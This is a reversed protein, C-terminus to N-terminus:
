NTRTTSDTSYSFLKKERKRKYIPNWWGNEDKTHFKVSFIPWFTPYTQLYDNITQPM